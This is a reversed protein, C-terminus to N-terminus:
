RSPTKKAEKKTEEKTESKASKKEKKAKIADIRAEAADAVTKRGDGKAFKKIDGAKDMSKIINVAESATIDKSKEKSM